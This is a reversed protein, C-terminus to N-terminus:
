PVVIQLWKVADNVLKFSAPNFVLQPVNSGVVPLIQLAGSKLLREVVSGALEGVLVVPSSSHRLGWEYALQFGEGAAGPPGIPHAFFSGTELATGGKSAAAAAEANLGGKTISEASAV